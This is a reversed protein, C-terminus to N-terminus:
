STGLDIQIWNNNAYIWLTFSSTNYYFDGNRLDTSPESALNGHFKGVYKTNITIYGDASIKCQTGGTDEILIYNSYVNCETGDNTDKLQASLYSYRGVRTGSSSRVGADQIDLSSIAGGFDIASISFYNGTGTYYKIANNSSENIVVRAGSTATQLVGGTITSALINGRVTLENSTTINWDFGKSLLGGSDRLGAFIKINTADYVEFGKSNNGTIFPTGTTNLSFGLTATGKTLKSGDFTWGAIQNTSGLEFYKVTDYKGIIGWESDSYGISITSTGLWAASATGGSRVVIGNEVLSTRPNQITGGFGGKRAWMGYGSNFLVTNGDTKQYPTANENQEVQFGWFAVKHTASYKPTAYLKMADGTLGTLDFLFTVRQWESTVLNITKTDIVTGDPYELTWTYYGSTDTGTAQMWFSIVWKYGDQEGQDGIWCRTDDCTVVFSISGSASSRRIYTAYGAMGGPLTTSLNENTYTSGSNWIWFAYGTDGALANESKKFLNNNIKGAYFSPEFGLHDGATVTGWVHVNGTMYANQSYVGYGYLSGFREDSIGGLNGFQGKFSSSSKWTTWSSVEDTIRIYPAKYEDSYLGIMGRRDADSSSGFRVLGDGKEPLGKNAPAGYLAEGVGRADEIFVSLGTVSTVRYILRKVLYFGDTLTRDDYDINYDGSVVGGLNVIQIMVLDGAKFPTVGHGTVDEVNVYKPSGPTYSTVKASATVLLNGNTVRIQQVLLEWVSLTGRVSLDDVELTYNYSQVTVVTGNSGAPENATTGEKYITFTTSGIPSYVIYIGNWATVSCGAIQVREGETLTHSSDLTVTAKDDTDRIISYLQYTGPQSLDEASLWWGYGGQWGPAFSVSGTDNSNALTFSRALTSTNLGVKTGDTYLSSYTLGATDNVHFPIFGDSLAWLKVTAFTPSANSHIPQITDLQYSTLKLNASDWRFDLNNSTVYIPKNAAVNISITRDASLDVASHGGAIAIPATGTLSRVHPVLYYVGGNEYPFIAQITGSLLSLTLNYAGNVTFAGDTSINGGLTITKGTNAVGTGGYQGTIVSAHWTGQTITGLTTINTSGAWTSLAVNEVNNILLNFRALNVDLQQGSGSWLLYDGSIDTQIGSQVTSGGSTGGAIYNDTQKQIIVNDVGYNAGTLAVLELAIEGDELNYEIKSTMYKESQFSFVDMLDWDLMSMNFKIMSIDYSTRRYGYFNYYSDAVDGCVDNLITYVTKTFDGTDYPTGVIYKTWYIPNGPRRHPSNSGTFSQIAMYYHGDGDYESNDAWLVRDGPVYATGDAYDGRYNTGDSDILRISYGSDILMQKTITIDKKLENRPANASKSAYGAGDYYESHSEDWIWSTGYISVADVLKDWFHKKEIEVFQNKVLTDIIWDGAPTESNAYFQNKVEVNGDPKVWLWARIASVMYKLADFPELGFSYMGLLQFIFYIPMPYATLTTGGSNKYNFTVTIDPWKDKLLATIVKFADIAQIENVTINNTHRPDGPGNYTYIVKPVGAVAPMYIDTNYFTSYFWYSQARDVDEITGNMDYDTTDGWYSGYDSVIGMYLANADFNVADSTYTWTILGWFEDTPNLYAGGNVQGKVFNVQIIEGEMPANSWNADIEGVGNDLWHFRSVEDDKYKQWRVRDANPPRPLFDVLLDGQLIRSEKLYLLNMASLKDVVEFSIAPINEVGDFYVPWTITSFDVMGIFIQKTTTPNKAEIKILYCPKSDISGTFAARVLNTILNGDSGRLKDSFSFTLTVNDYVIVGAEGFNDSEVKKVLSSMELKFLTWDEWTGYVGATYTCFSIKFTM